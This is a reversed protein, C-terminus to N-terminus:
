VKVSSIENGGGDGAFFFVCIIKLLTLFVASQRYNRGCLNSEHDLRSNKKQTSSLNGHMSHVSTFLAFDKIM